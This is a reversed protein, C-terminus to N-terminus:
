RSMTWMQHFDFHDESIWARRPLAQAARLALWGDRFMPVGAPHQYPLGALCALAEVDASGPFAERVKTVLHALLERRQQVGGRRVYEYGLLVSFIPDLFELAAFKAFIDADDSRGVPALPLGKALRAQAQIVFRVIQLAGLPGYDPQRWLPRERRLGSPPLVMQRITIQRSHEDAPLLVVIMTVHQPLCVTALRCLPRHEETGIWLARVFPPTGRISMHFVNDMGSMPDLRAGYRFPRGDGLIAAMPSRPGSALLYLGSENLGLSEFGSHAVHSLKRHRGPADLIGSAGVVALWAAPDPDALPGLAESIDLADEARSLSSFLTRQLSPMQDFFMDVTLEDNDDLRLQRESIVTGHQSLSLSYEGPQLKVEHRGASFSRATEDRLATMTVTSEPPVKLRLVPERRASFSELVPLTFRVCRDEFLDVPEIPDPEIQELHVLEPLLKLSLKYDDPAFRLEKPVESFQHSEPKRYTALADLHLEIGSGAGEIEVRCITPRVQELSLTRIEGRTRDLLSVMTSAAAAVQREPKLCAAVYKSLSDFTVYYNGRLWLKARGKGCLGDVLRDAFRSDNPAAAGATTAFLTFIVPHGTEATRAAFGLTRPRLTSESVSVRCADIFYYHNKGGLFLELMAQLESLRLCFEGAMIGAKYDAGILLADLRREPTAPAQMGHGNFFVFLDDTRDQGSRVLEHIAELIGMIDNSHTRAAVQPGACLLVVSNRDRAQIWEAFKLGSAHAGQIPPLSQHVYEEVVIILARSAM